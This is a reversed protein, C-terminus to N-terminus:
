FDDSGIVIGGGKRNALTTALAAPSDVGLKEFVKSRHVEVTREVISLTVAIKKNLEGSAVLVAVKRQQVTLSEWMFKLFECRKAGANQEEEKKMAVKLLPLLVDASHPKEVFNLAGKKVENVAKEITAKGSLFIVPSRKTYGRAILQDHIMDGDMSPNDLDLVFVARLPKPGADIAVLLDKGSLFSRVMYGSEQLMYTLGNLIEQDDDCIYITAQATM